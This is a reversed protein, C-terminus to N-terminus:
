QLGPIFKALYDDSKIDLIDYINHAPDLSCLLSNKIRANKLAFLIANTTKGTGGKGTFFHLQQM